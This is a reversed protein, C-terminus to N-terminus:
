KDFKLKIDSVATNLKAMSEKSIDLSKDSAVVHQRALILTQGKEQAVEEVAKFAEKKLKAMAEVLASDIRSKGKQAMVRTESFKKEFAKKKESLEKVELDAATELLEKEMERLASEQAKLKKVFKDRESQVQKQISKAADSKTLLSEVDVVGISIDQANATQFPYIFLATAFMAVLLSIKSM